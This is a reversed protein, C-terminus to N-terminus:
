RRKLGVSYGNGVAQTSWLRLTDSSSGARYATHERKVQLSRIVRSPGTGNDGPQHEARPRAADADEAAHVQMPSLIVLGVCIPAARMKM